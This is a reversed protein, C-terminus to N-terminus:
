RTDDSPEAQGLRWAANILGVHSFAQPFNGLLEGSTPDAEESLLGLDNAHATAGAFLATAREQQGALSLCEVLWYTCIM